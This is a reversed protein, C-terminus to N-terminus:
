YYQNNYFIIINIVCLIINKINISKITTFIIINM